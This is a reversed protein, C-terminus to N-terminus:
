RARTSVAHLQAFCCRAASLYCQGMAPLEELLQPFAGTPSIGIWLWGGGGARLSARGGVRLMEGGRVGHICLEM